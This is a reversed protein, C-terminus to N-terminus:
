IIFFHEEFPVEITQPPQEVRRLNEKQEPPKTEPPKVMSEPTEPVEQTQEAEQAPALQDPLRTVTPPRPFVSQTYAM